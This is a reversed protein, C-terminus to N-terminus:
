YMSKYLERVQMVTKDDVGLWRLGRECEPNGMGIYGDLGADICYDYFEKVSDLGNMGLAVDGIYCVKYHKDKWEKLMKKSMQKKVKIIEPSTQPAEFTWYWWPLLWWEKDPIIEPYVFAEYGYMSYVIGAIGKYNLEKLINQIEAFIRKFYCKLMERGENSWLLNIEIGLEHCYQRAANDYSVNELAPRNNEKAWNVYVKKLMECTLGEFEFFLYDLKPLATLQEKILEKMRSVYVDKTFDAIFCISDTKAGIAVSTLDWEGLAMDKEWLSDEFTLLQMMAGVSIKNDHLYEIIQNGWKNNTKVNQAEAYNRLYPLNTKIGNTYWKTYFTLNNFSIDNKLNDIDNKVTEIDSKWFKSICENTPVWHDMLGKLM